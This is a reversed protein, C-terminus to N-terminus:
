VPERRRAAGDAGDAGGVGLLAIVLGALIILGGVLEQGVVTFVFVQPLVLTLISKSFLTLPPNLFVTLGVTSAPLHQLLWTWLAFGLVTCPIGLYLVALWGTGDLAALEGAVRPFLPAMLLVGALIAVYSWVLPSVPKAEGSELMHKSVVTYISWSLPAAVATAVVMSYSFDSEGRALAIVVVGAFGVGIGVWKRATVSEGLFFYSLLAVVLPVLTTIVSAVPAPLGSAQASYLSLNYGPVVLLGCLLLTGVHDRISAISEKLRWAGLYLAIPLAATGMRAITLGLPTMRAAERETGLLYSM